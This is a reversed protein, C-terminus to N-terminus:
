PGGGKTAARLRRAAAFEAQADAARGLAKLALGLDFHVDPDDPARGLALRYERLADAPRGLAALAAGLNAHADSSDLGLRLAARYQAAAESWRGLQALANAYDFRCGASAPQLRLARRYEPLADALRGSAALAAALDSHAPAYDPGDRVARRFAGLAEDFRGLAAFAVGLNAEAEAFGGKLALAREYHAVAEAPHGSDALALGLNNEAEPYDPRLAVARRLPAVAEAARGAQALAIGLNNQAFPNDPSKAATDSWLAVEDRYAHNRRFTAAGLAMTWACGLAVFVATRKQRAFRACLVWLVWALAVVVPALALYMRHEAMTQSMGPVLSTPSLIAFFFVGLYGWPRRRLFGAAVAAALAAVAAACAAEKRAGVKPWPTAYFDLPHPWVALRLYHLLVPFQTRVYGWWSFGLDFGATGGRNGGGAAVLAFLPIWTLALAAYYGRRRRWAEGFSGAAFTRDYALVLVPASVMVEKTAMGLLCATFSAAAWATGARRRGGDSAEAYRVFGYLTALYLLGMLSEARQVIYTVAETGLPHVAWALAAVFAVADAEASARSLRLLTRRVLGFLTLAAAVHVALNFAHYGWPNLGGWAYNLALTLNVLPRGGVTVGGASPPVLIRRLDSLHRLTPNDVIAPGDLYVFAGRFADAYAAAAAGAIAAGLAAARGPKSRDSSSFVSM